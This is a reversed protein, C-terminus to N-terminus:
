CMCVSILNQPMMTISRSPQLGSESNEAIIPRPVLGRGKSSSPLTGEDKELEYLDLDINADGISPFNTEIFDIDRSEIEIMEGNSHEGHMVYGKSSDDYLSISELELSWNEM